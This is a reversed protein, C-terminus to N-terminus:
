LNEKLKDNLLVELLPMAEDMARTTFDNPKTGPHNVYAAFVSGAGDTWELAKASSPQITHASTGETIWIVKPKESDTEVGISMIPGDFVSVPRFSDRFAGTDYPANKKAVELVIAEAERSFERLAVGFRESLNIKIM